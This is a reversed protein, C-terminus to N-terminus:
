LGPCDLVRSRTKLPAGNMTFSTTPVTTSITPSLTSGSFGNRYVSWGGTEAKDGVVGWEFDDFLLPAAPNKIGFGSGSITVSQKHQISAPASTIQPTTQAQVSAPESKINQSFLFYGALLFLTVLFLTFKIKKSIYKM